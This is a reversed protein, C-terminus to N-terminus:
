WGHKNPKPTPAQMPKCRNLWLTFFRLTCVRNNADCWRRAKECERVVDIGAYIPDKVLDDLRDDVKPLPSKASRAKVPPSSTKTDTDAETDAEAEAQIVVANCDNCPMVDAAKKLARHKAVRERNKTQSDLRTSISRYKQANLVMWGGPVREIRKGGNEPDSSNEDESTLCALGAMTEDLSIRARHALNAPSAFQAFGSEDMSALLTLWLLRTSLSELWISSDLIKTFIKNYM